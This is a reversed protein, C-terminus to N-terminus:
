RGGGSRRLLASAPAHVVEERDLSASWAVIEDITAAYAYTKGLAAGDRRAIEVLAALERRVLARDSESAAAPIMRTVTALEARAGARQAAGTDDVYGVGAAELHRLVPAMAAADASFKAGQYNTAAAYGGFRAMLWDLRQLNDAAARATTLAAPGLADQGPGYGEMPLEIVVEHGARRAKETWFDLNKAYPAFSLSVEPPLEDIARETVASNLGLGSVLLAVKPAGDAGDFPRAYYQSPRRGDPAIRPALGLATQRLLAPDPDPIPRVIGTLSAARAPAAQRDTVGPITIIIDDAAFEADGEGAEGAFMDGVGPYILALGSDDGLEDPYDGEVPADDAAAVAVPPAIREEGAGRSPPTIIRALTEMEGVPLAIRGVGSGDRSTQYVLGAGGAFIAAAGLWAWTLRSLVPSKFRRRRPMRRNGQM